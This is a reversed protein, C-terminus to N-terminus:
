AAVQEYVLLADLMNYQTDTEDRQAGTTILIFEEGNKVALSALCQGAASTYGTKGGIIEGGGFSPSGIKAFLTSRFTVGDEHLNTPATTHRAATFIDRFTDNNLAYALLIAMDKVTTYHESDHLGTANTFHTGNMGLQAARENMKEAFAAESGAIARSLGIAAEAGSPLMVGYLLDLARVAEGPQFGAMSANEQYLAPFISEELVIREELDPLNELAVLTTMIKTLSAPYTLDDRNHHYLISRDSLRVLIAERSNLEIGSGPLEARQVDDAAATYSQAIRHVVAAPTSYLFLLLLCVISFVALLRFAFTKYPKKNNQM